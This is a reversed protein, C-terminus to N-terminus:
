STLLGEALFAAVGLMLLVSWLPLEQGGAPKGEGAVRAHSEGGFWATLEAPDLRRTDSERPDPTVAFALRPDLREEGRVSLKVQWLGPEPPAWAVGGAVRTLGARELEALARERGDPGVLAALAEGEGLRIVRREGVPSAAQRHEDLGGTLYAAFRQLVPLFSTRIPWDTWDRDATSTFLLVRGKGRQGEILAPAGDDFAALVRAPAGQKVPRALLYRETRTGMLGERAEGSFVSLAPHGFDVEAFRAAGGGGKARPTATKEVHLSM